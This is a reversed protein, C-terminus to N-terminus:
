RDEEVFVDLKGARVAEVLTAHDRETQDAYARAFDAVADDFKDSNGLYGAIQAPEGSRAHAHALAWGCAEGYQIMVSPTFAEVMPKIKMDRLQRVYFHRGAQGQTWGLFLDSASQMLQYGAVVRHGHNDYVSKGAYPELVSPRAQKVQLFLPDSDGAMLLMVSCVTGVSGV